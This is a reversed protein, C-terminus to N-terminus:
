LPAKQNAKRVVAQTWGQVFQFAPLGATIGLIGSPLTPEIRAPIKLASNGAISSIEVQEGSEIGLTEADSPNLLVCFDP